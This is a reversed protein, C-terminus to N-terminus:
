LFFDAAKKRKGPTAKKKEFGITVVPTSTSKRQAAGKSAAQRTVPTEPTSNNLKAAVKKPGNSALASGPSKLIGSDPQKAPNYPTMPSNLSEKFGLSYFCHFFTLYVFIIQLLFIEFLFRPLVM